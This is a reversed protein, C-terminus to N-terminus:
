SKRALGKILNHKLQYATDGYKACIGTCKSPKFRGEVPLICDGCHLNFGPEEKDVYNDCHGKYRKM